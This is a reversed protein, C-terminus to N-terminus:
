EFALAERVVLKTASRAPLVSAIISLIVVVLLWILIGAPAFGYVLPSKIFSIGVTVSMIYGMPYAFVAALAWSLLGVFVGEVIVIQTVDPGGAGVSRIIGIERTRELVNLSKTGALSLGGVIAFLVAMSVLLLLIPATLREAQDRTRQHTEISRVLINENRLRGDVVGAAEEQFAADHQTTGLALRNPLANPGNVETYRELPVYAMPIEPLPEGLGVMQTTVLGVVQWEAEQGGTRLTVTDGIAVDEENAAFDVNVVIASSDGPQLWRGDLLTPKIFQSDIPVAFLTIAEDSPAGDPQLRFAPGVHWGESHTVPAISDTIQNLEPLPYPRQLDVTIDQGWYAAVDNITLFLSQRVSLVTIFIAGGLSLTILTLALRLKRRFINRAAYAWAAPLSPIRGLL